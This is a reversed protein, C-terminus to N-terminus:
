RDDKKCTAHHIALLIKADQSAKRLAYATIHPFEARMAAKFAEDDLGHLRLQIAFRTMVDPNAKTM